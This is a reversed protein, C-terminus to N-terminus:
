QQGNIISFKQFFLKGNMGLDLLGPFGFSFFHQRAEPTKAIFSPECEFEMWMMVM